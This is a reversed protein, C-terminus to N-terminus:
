LMGRLQDHALEAFYVPTNVAVEFDRYTWLSDEQQNKWTQIFLDGVDNVYLALKYDGSRHYDYYYELGRVDHSRSVMKRIWLRWEPEVMFELAAGISWLREPLALPDDIQYVVPTASVRLRNM